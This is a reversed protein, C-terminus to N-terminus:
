DARAAEYFGATGDFAYWPSLAVDGVMMEFHLHPGTAYGTMGVYGITDGRTVTDGAACNLGSMHFYVTHVGQGHEILVTYGTMQLYDAFLVVGTNSAAVPTGEACAIDIGAHRSPTSANNTYRKIGYETTISGQCPQLFLDSWYIEDTFHPYLAYLKQAIEDGASSSGVTSSVTSASITLHQVEYETETVAYPVEYEVGNYSVTAAYGGAERMFNFPLICSMATGDRHVQPTYPYPVSVALEGERLNEGRLVLADGQRVSGASLWFRPAAAYTAGFRYVAEATYDEGTYSARVEIDYRADEPPVFSAFAAAEGQWVAAGDRSVSVNAADPEGAFYLANRLAGFSLEAPASQPGAQEEAQEEQKLRVSFLVPRLTQEGVTLADGASLQAIIEERRAAASQRDGGLVFVACLAMSAVVVVSLVVVVVTMPRIQTKM